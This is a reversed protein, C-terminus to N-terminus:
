NRKVREIVLTHIEGTDEKIITVTFNHTEGFYILKIGEAKPRGIIREGYAHNIIKTTALIMMEDNRPIMKPYFLATTQDEKRSFNYKLDAVFGSDELTYVAASPASVFPPPAALSMFYLVALVVGFTAFACGVYVGLDKLSMQTVPYQEIYRVAAIPEQTKIKLPRQQTVTIHQVPVPQVPMMANCKLCNFVTAPNSAGCYKCDNM